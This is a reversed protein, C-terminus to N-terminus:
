AWDKPNQLVKILDAERSGAKPEHRYEWRAHLPLSMLISEIRAGPTALGFKTGRDYVLNFETYRGRRIAQWEKMERTFPMDMRREVIPVYQKSFADGCARIFAFLQDREHKDADGAAPAGSLDDFFIGGVGRSETRHKIYFYEDCWKKFKTYYSPDHADCVQKITGHFHACDEPFIYSPTLDCGGGFWWAAPEAGEGSGFLRQLIGNDVKNGNVDCLEFYRYNAHATPANPNHPHIVLSLGTAFMRFPGEGLGEIKRARMQQEMAPPLAGHVVSVNVGAKEFVSGDQLVCSIGEGGEARKWRDFHFKSGTEGELGELDRVIRRQLDKLYEPMAARMNVEAKKKADCALTNVNTSIYHAAALASTLGALGALRQRIM